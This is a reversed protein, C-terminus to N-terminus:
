QERKIFLLRGTAKTYGYESKERKGVQNKGSSWEVRFGRMM